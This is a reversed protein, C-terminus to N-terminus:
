QVESIKSAIATARDFKDGGHRARLKDRNVQMVEHPSIEFFRCLMLWNTLMRSAVRSMDEKDLDAGDFLHFGLIGSMRGVLESMRLCRDAIAEERHENSPLHSDTIGITLLDETVAPVGVLQCIAMWYWLCDGLEKVLKEQALPEGHYLHKKIVDVVEGAEGVLGIAFNSLLQRDSLVKSQRFGQVHDEFEQLTIM